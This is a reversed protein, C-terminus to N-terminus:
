RYLAIYHDIGTNIIPRYRPNNQMIWLECSYRFGAQGRQMGAPAWLDNDLPDPLTRIYESKSWWYNGSTVLTGTKADQVGVVDCDSLLRLCSPWEGIMYHDLLKRWEYVEPKFGSVAGKNNFYLLDFDKTSTLALQRAFGLTHAESINELGIDRIDTVSVWPYRLSLYERVKHEFTCPIGETSEFPIDFIATWYRPM